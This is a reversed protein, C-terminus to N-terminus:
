NQSAVRDFIVKNNLVKKSYKRSEDNLSGNYKQLAIMMNYNSSSYYENLINVGISINNRPHWIDGGKDNITSRIRDRHWKPIVQTLGLAGAHSKAFQNFGSEVSILSLILTPPISHVNSERFTTLIIKEAFELSTNYKNKVFLALVQMEKIKEKRKNIGRNKFLDDNSDLLYLNINNFNVAVATNKRPTKKTYGYRDLLEKKIEINDSLLGAFEKKSKEEKTLFKLPKSIVSSSLSLNYSYVFLGFCLLLMLFYVIFGIKKIRLIFGGSILVMVVFEPPDPPIRVRM